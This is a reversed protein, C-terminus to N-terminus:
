IDSYNQEQEIDKKESLEDATEKEELALKKKLCNSQQKSTRLDSQRLLIRESINEELTPIARPILQRMESQFLLNKIINNWSEVCANSNRRLNFRKIMCGTWLSYYPLLENLLYNIFNPLYLDNTGDFNKTENETDVKIKYFSQYFPSRDRQTKAFTFDIVENEFSDCEEDNESPKIIINTEFDLSSSDKYLKEFYIGYEPCKEQFAFLKLMMIFLQKSHNFDTSHIFLNVATRLLKQTKEDQTFTKIRRIAAKILHSSCVHIYTFDIQDKEPNELTEFTKQLYIELDFNNFAKCSSQIMAKSFDVEILDVLPWNSSSYKRLTAVFISLCSHINTTSHGTTVFELVAVTSRWDLQPLVLCYYFPRKISDPPQAFISGTADFHLVLFGEKKAKIIEQIQGETYLVVSFDPFVNYGQLYGSVHKGKLEEENDFCIKLKRLFTDFSEDLDNRKRWESAIKWLITDSPADNRNESDRVDKPVKKFFKGKMVSVPKKEVAEAFFKRKNGKIFRRQIDGEEHNYVGKCFVEVKFDTEANLVEFIKFTFKNCRSMKCHGIGVFPTVKKRGKRFKLDHDDIVLVCYSNCSKFYENFEDTWGPLFKTSNPRWFKQMFEKPLIFSADSANKKGILNKSSKNKKEVNENQIIIDNTNKSEGYFSLNNIVNEKNESYNIPVSKVDSELTNLDLNTSISHNQLNASGKM